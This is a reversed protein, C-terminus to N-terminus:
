SRRVPSRPYARGAVTTGRARICIELFVGAVRGCNNEMYDLSPKCRYVAPLLYRAPSSSQHKWWKCRHECNLGRIIGRGAVEAYRREYRRM